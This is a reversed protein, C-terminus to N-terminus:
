RELARKALRYWRSAYYEDVIEQYLARRQEGDPLDRARWFHRAASDEHKARLGLYTRQVGAVADTAGFRARFEWFREVWEGDRNAAVLKALAEAEPAAAEELRASQAAVRRLLEAEKTRERARRLLASADRPHQEELAREAHEVLELASGANMADLWLLADDVPLFAWPHGLREPAFLRLAPFGGDDLSDFMHAAMAFEVVADRQGHVLAIPIRRQTARLEADDFTNPECQVLLGGAVELAGAIREPYFMTVALTLFGGQSHGSVYWREIPLEQELQELAQAVLWPTQNYRWPEGVRHGSFEVYTANFARAGERSAPSLHEGDLGVLIYREALAPWNSPFGEVYDRSHANSGHLLAVATYRKRPDFGEPVRLHYELGSETQGDTVEGARAAARAPELRYGGFHGQAGVQGLFTHGDKWLQTSGDAGGHPGSVHFEFRGGELQGEIKSEFSWGYEGTIRSGKAALKMPGLTTMWDGSYARAQEGKNQAAPFVALCVLAFTAPVQM